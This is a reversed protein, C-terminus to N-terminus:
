SLDGDGPQLGDDTLAAFRPGRHRTGAGPDPREDRQYHESGRQRPAVRDLKAVVLAAVREALEDGNVIEIRINM